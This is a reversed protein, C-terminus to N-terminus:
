NPKTREIQNKLMECVTKNTTQKKGDAIRQINEWLWPEVRVTKTITKQHNDSNFVPVLKKSIRDRILEDGNRAEKYKIQFPIGLESLLACPHSHAKIRESINKSVGVFYISPPTKGVSLVCYMRLRKSTDNQTLDLTKWNSAM